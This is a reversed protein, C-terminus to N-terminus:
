SVVQKRSKRIKPILVAVSICLIIGVFPVTSTGSVTIWKSTIYYNYMQLKKILNINIYPNQEVLAVIPIKLEVQNNINNRKKTIVVEAGSVVTNELSSSAHRVEAVYNGAALNYTNGTTPEGGVFTIYFYASLGDAVFVYGEGEFGYDFSSALTIYLYLYDRDRYFSIIHSTELRPKGKGYYYYFAQPKDSWDDYYGDIVIGADSAGVLITNVNFSIVLTM